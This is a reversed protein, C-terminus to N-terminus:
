FKDSRVLSTMPSMSSLSVQNREVFKRPIDFAPQFKCIPGTIESILPPLLFLGGLLERKRLIGTPRPNFNIELHFKVYM